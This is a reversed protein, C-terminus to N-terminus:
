DEELLELVKEKIKDIEKDRSLYEESKSDLSSEKNGKLLEKTLIIAILNNLNNEEQRRSRGSLFSGNSAGRGKKRLKVILFLGIGVVAVM